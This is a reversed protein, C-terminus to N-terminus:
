FMSIRFWNAWVPIYVSCVDRLITLFQLWDPTGTVEKFHAWTTCFIFCPASSADSSSSSSSSSVVNQEFGLLHHGGGSSDSSGTSSSVTGNGSESHNSVLLHSHVVMHVCQQLIFVVVLDLVLDNTTAARHSTDKSLSSSGDPLWYARAVPPSFFPPFEGHTEHSDHSDHPSDHSDHSDHSDSHTDEEAQLDAQSQRQRDFHNRVAPLVSSSSAAQSVNDQTETIKTESLEM